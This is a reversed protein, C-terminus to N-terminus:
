CNKCKQSEMLLSLTIYDQNNLGWIIRKVITTDNGYSHRGPGGNCSNEFAVHVIAPNLEDPLINANNYLMANFGPETSSEYIVCLVPVFDINQVALLSPATKM